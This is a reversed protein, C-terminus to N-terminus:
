YSSCPRWSRFSPAARWAGFIEELLVPLVRKEEKRGLSIMEKVSEAIGASPTYADDYRDGQAAGPQGASPGLPLAGASGSLYEAM